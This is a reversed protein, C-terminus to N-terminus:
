HLVPATLEEPCVPTAFRDFFSQAEVMLMGLREGDTNQLSEIGQHV